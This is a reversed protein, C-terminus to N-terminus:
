GTIDSRILNTGDIGLEVDTARGDADTRGDAAHNTREGRGGKLGYDGETM